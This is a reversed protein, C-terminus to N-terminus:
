ASIARSRLAAVLGDLAVGKQINRRLLDSLEDVKSVMRRIWAFDVSSALTALEERLDPNRLRDEHGYQLCLMDELLVYLAELYGELKESRSASLSEAMKSWEALTSRGSAARLLSLMAARRKDWTELDLSLALGPSGNALATRRRPDSLKRTALFATM